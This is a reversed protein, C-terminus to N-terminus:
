IGLTASSAQARSLRQQRRGLVVFSLINGVIGVIAVPMSIWVASVYRTRLLAIASSGSSMAEAAAAPAESSSSSLFTQNDEDMTTPQLSTRNEPIQVVGPM